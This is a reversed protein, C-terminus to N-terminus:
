QEAHGRSDAVGATKTDIACKNGVKSFDKLPTFFVEFVHVLFANGPFGSEVVLSSM